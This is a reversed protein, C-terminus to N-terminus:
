QVHLIVVEGTSMSKKYEKEMWRSIHLSEIMTCKEVLKSLKTAWEPEQASVTKPFLAYISRCLPNFSIQLADIPTYNSYDAFLHLEELAPAALNTLIMPPIHGYVRLVHLHEFIIPDALNTVIMHPIYEYVHVPETSLRSSVGRLDERHYTTFLILEHLMPFLSLTELDHGAWEHLNGFTLTSVNLFNAGWFHPSSVQHDSMHVRELVPCNPFQSGGSLDRFNRLSLTKLSPLSKPLLEVLTQIAAEDHGDPSASAWNAWTLSICRQFGRWEPRRFTEVHHLIRTADPENVDENDIYLCLPLSGSRLLCQEIFKDGPDPLRHFHVLFHRDLSITTWLHANNVAVSYFRRSVFLLHRFSLPGRECLHYFIGGLLDDTM